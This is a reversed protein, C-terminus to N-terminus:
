YFCVSIYAHCESIGHEEKIGSKKLCAAVNQTINILERRKSTQFWLEERFSIM